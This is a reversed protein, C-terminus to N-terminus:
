KIGDIFGDKFYEEANYWTENKLITELDTLSKKCGNKMYIDALKDHLKTLYGSYSIMHTYKGSNGSALEHIMAQSNATMYKKDAIICMITGASAVLGTIVSVFEVYPHKKRTLNIFDVFKLIDTVSGGPSDVIYTITLKEESDETYGDKYKDVIQAIEKIIYEITMKNIGESFHIEKGTTYIMNFPESHGATTKRKKSPTSMPDYRHTVLDDQSNQNFGWQVNHNNSNM